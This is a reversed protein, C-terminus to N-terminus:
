NLRKWVLDENNRREVYAVVKGQGDYKFLERGEVGKSFFIDAAEPILQRKQKGIEQAYLSSGERSITLTVGPGLQYQGVYRPYRGMDPVGPNPDAYYRFTQEAIIQWKGNRRIWTDTGHYRATNLQGFITETENLDYGLVITDGVTRSVPNVLDLTGVDGKSLPTIEKLLRAKDMSRGREDFVLADDAFQEDFPKPNGADVAHMREQTLRVLEEQTMTGSDQAYCALCAAMLLPMSMLSLKTM